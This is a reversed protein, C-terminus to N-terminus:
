QIESSQTTNGIDHIFKTTKASTAGIRQVTDAFIAQHMCASVGQWWILVDGTM